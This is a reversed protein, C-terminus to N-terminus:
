LDNRVFRCKEFGALGTTFEGCLRRIKSELPYDLCNTKSDAMKVVANYFM